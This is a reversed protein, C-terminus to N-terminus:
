KSKLQLQKAHEVDFSVPALGLQCRSHAQVLARELYLTFKTTDYLPATKKAAHVKQKIRQFEDAQGGLAVASQVYQEASYAILEPLNLASLLSSAMRGAFTQGQLTLVPVGMWLADSATTGANYPGTDLFLDVCHYQALYDEFGKREAFVIREHSVGHQEAALNLNHQQAESEALLMLVSHPVLRLTQMWLAFRDPNIKYNNNLCAFVFGKVPLGLQQRTYKPDPNPRNTDNAQYWPLKIIKETYHHHDEPNVLVADALLYDMNALGCTGLYGLYSIQVPAVRSAFIGPRGFETYGSLDIALDIDISRAQQVIEKDTLAAVELWQDVARQIKTSM